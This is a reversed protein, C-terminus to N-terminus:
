YFILNLNSKKFAKTELIWFDGLYGLNLLSEVTLM